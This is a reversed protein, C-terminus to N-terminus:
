AREKQSLSRTIGLLSSPTEAYLAEDDREGRRRKEQGREAEKVRRAGERDCTGASGLSKRHVRPTTMGGSGGSSSISTTPSSSMQLLLSAASEDEPTWSPSVTPSQSVGRHHSSNNKLPFAHSTSTSTSSAISMRRTPIPIRMTKRGESAFSCSISPHAPGPLSLAPLTQTTHALPPRFSGSLPPTPLHSSLNMPQSMFDPSSAPIASLSSPDYPHPLWSSIPPLSPSASVPHLAPSASTLRRSSITNASPPIAPPPLSSPRTAANTPTDHDHDTQARKRKTSPSPPSNVLSSTESPPQSCRACTSTTAHIELVQVKQILEQIYTVTKVLVDLKFEKEGKPKEKEVPAEVSGSSRQKEAESVLTSLTALTENIKTRRAKEIRSHNLKRQSERASRSMTGPKRGRRKPPPAHEVPDYEDEEDDSSDQEPSEGLRRTTMDDKPLLQPRPRSLAQVTTSVATTSQPQITATDTELRPRKAKRPPNVSAIYPLIDKTAMTLPLIPSRPPQRPLQRTSLRESASHDDNSIRSTIPQRPDHACLFTRVLVILRGRARGGRHWRIPQGQM